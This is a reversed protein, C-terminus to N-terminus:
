CLFSWFIWLVLVPEDFLRLVNRISDLKSSAFAPKTMLHSKFILKAFLFVGLVKLENVMKIMTDEIMLKPFSSALTRSRFVILFKAKIPNVLM